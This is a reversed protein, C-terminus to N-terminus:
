SARLDAEEGSLWSRMEDPIPASKLTEPEGVAHIAWIRTDEAEALLRGDDSRFEHRFCMSSGGLRQVTIQHTVEEHLRPASLFKMSVSAGPLGTMRGDSIGNPDIGNQLFMEDLGETMWRAYIPFFIIGAPDCESWHLRRKYTYTYMFKANYRRTSSYTYRM